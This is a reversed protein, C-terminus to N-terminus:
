GERGGREREGEWRGRVRRERGKGKRGGIEREGKEGELRGRVSREGVM